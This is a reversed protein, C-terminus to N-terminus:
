GGYRSATTGDAVLPRAMSYSCSGWRVHLSIYRYILLVNFVTFIEQIDNMGNLNGTFHKIMLAHVKQLEHLGCM